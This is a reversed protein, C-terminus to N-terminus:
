HLYTIIHTYKGQQEDMPFACVISEPFLCFVFIMLVRLVIGPFLKIAYYGSLM